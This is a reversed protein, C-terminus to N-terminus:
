NLPAACVSVPYRHVRLMVGGFPVHACVGGFPVRACM